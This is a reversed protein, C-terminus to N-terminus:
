MIGGGFFEIYGKDTNLQLPLLAVPENNEYATYFYLQYLSLQYSLYRFEWTDYMSKNPTLQEWIIKAKEIDKICFITYSM